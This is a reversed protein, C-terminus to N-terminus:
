PSAYPTFSIGILGFVHFSLFNDNHDMKRAFFFYLNGRDDTSRRGGCPWSKGWLFFSFRPLDYCVGRNLWPISRFFRLRVFSVVSWGWRKMHGGSLGWVGFDPCCVTSKKTRNMLM